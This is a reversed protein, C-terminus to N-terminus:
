ACELEVITMPGRKDLVGRYEHSLVKWNDDTLIGLNVLMDWVPKMAQGELNDIDVRHLNPFLFTVQAHAKTIDKWVSPQPSRNRADAICVAALEGWELAAKRRAHFSGETRPHYNGRIEPPPLGPLGITLNM